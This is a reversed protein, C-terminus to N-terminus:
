ESLALVESGPRAIPDDDAALLLADNNKHRHRFAAPIPQGLKEERVSGHQDFYLAFAVLVLLLLLGLPM